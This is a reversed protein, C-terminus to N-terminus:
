VENKITKDILPISWFHQSYAHLSKLKDFDNIKGDTMYTKIKKRDKRNRIDELKSYQSLDLHNINPLSIEFEENRYWTYSTVGDIDDPSNTVNLKARAAYLQFVDQEFCSSM